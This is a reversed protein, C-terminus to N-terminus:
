RTRVDLENGDACTKGPPFRSAEWSPSIGEGVSDFLCKSPGAYLTPAMRSHKSSLPM